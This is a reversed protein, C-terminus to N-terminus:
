PTGDASVAYLHHLKAGCLPLTAFGAIVFPWLVLTPVHVIFDGVLFNCHQARTGVAAHDRAVQDARADFDRHDVHPRLMDLGHAGVPQGDGIHHTILTKLLSQARSDLDM